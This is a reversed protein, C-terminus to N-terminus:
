HSALLPERSAAELAAAATAATIVNVAPVQGLATGCSWCRVPLPDRQEDHVECEVVVHVEAGCKCHWFMTASITM